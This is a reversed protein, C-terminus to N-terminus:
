CYYISTQRILHAYKVDDNSASICKLGTNTGIGYFCLLLRFQLTERSLNERTASSHFKRTLGIDLESEKLVDILSITGYEKKIEVHLKKINPPEAQPDYPSIKIHGGNKDTIEVKENTLINNNLAKLSEHLQKKRPEIFDRAHIPLGLLNYYHERKEEFDKPLDDHPNRYRLAGEIWIMKCGLQRRLEQLVAIEYNIRHTKKSGNENFIVLGDWESSIVNKIPALVKKQYYRDSSDRNEIIIKIAELLPKSENINTEFVFGELLTLLITRHAHSYMSYMKKHVQQEYWKGKSNHEKIIESLTEKPVTPYIEEQIIGSPKEISIMSLLCLIDFKGNVRKVESLIKKDVFNESSTRIKHILQMLLDALSDTLLQSRFYCFLSFIGYRINPNHRRINLPHKTLVRTYYKNILKASLNSLLANPLYLKKLHNVKQIALAVNKLKAGPIDQKLHRFRIEFENNDQEDDDIESDDILLSDMMKKTKDSLEIYISDFLQHASQIHRTLEKSTFPEIRQTRFYEYAHEIRQSKRVNNLFVNEILWEKLKDVDGLTAKKYGLLNRIETRFRKTSRGEWDFDDICSAPVNLQNAICNIMLSDIYKLHKPYHSELQFYKLLIAFGLRNKDSNKAQGLTLEDDSLNFINDNGM